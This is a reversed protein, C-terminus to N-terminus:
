FFDGHDEELQLQLRSSNIYNINSLKVKENRDDDYYM